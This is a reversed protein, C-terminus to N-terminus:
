KRLYFIAQDGQEHKNLEKARREYSLIDNKSFISNDISILYSRKDKLPIGREYQESGWFQFSTSDYVVKYLDLGVNDALMKM